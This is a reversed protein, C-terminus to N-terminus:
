APLRGWDTGGGAPGLEKELVTCPLEVGEYEVTTGGVRRYGAGEYFGAANLSAVVRVSGAGRAALRGELGALLASGVGQGAHDPHVYLAALESAEHTAVGFGVVTGDREAVLVPRDPDGVPYDRPDRDHDWAALQRRDYAGPPVGRVAEAHVSALRDRDDVTATRVHVQMVSTPLSGVSM